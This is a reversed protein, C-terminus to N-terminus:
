SASRGPALSVGCEFRETHGPELVLLGESSVLAGGLASWPEVCVFPQGPLTWLVLTSFNPSWSLELRHGDGRTFSTGPQGHDLLAVDVEGEGLAVGQFSRVVGSAREKLRTARTTVHAQAKTALPTAFYPHLGVHLPMPSAGTNTFALELSLQERSLSVAYVAQFDFPFGRRTQEDSNLELELRAINGSTVGPRVAWARRRAFGHQPQSVPHGLWVVGDPLPGPNPFLLPIGGRVNKSRDGLTAEDLFLLDVGRVQFRSVLAGREPVVHAEADGDSLVYM